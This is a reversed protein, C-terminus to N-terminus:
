TVLYINNYLNNQHLRLQLLSANSEFAFWGYFFREKFVVEIQGQCQLSEFIIAQVPLCVSLYVSPCLSLHVSLCVSIVLFM